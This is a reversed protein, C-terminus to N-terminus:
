EVINYTGFFVMQSTQTFNVFAATSNPTNTAQLVYEFGPYYQNTGLNGSQCFRNSVQPPNLGMYTDNAVDNGTKYFPHDERHIYTGVNVMMQWYKCPISWQIDYTCWMKVSPNAQPYNSSSIEVTTHMADAIFAWNDTMISPGNWQMNGVNNEPYLFGGTGHPWLNDDKDTTANIPTPIDPGTFGNPDVEIYDFPNLHWFNSLETESLYLYGWYWAGSFSGFQMTNTATPGTTATGPDPRQPNYYLVTVSSNSKIPISLHPWPFDGQTTNDAAAITYKGGQTNTAANRFNFVSWNPSATCTGTKSSANVSWSTNPYISLYVKNTDSNMIFADPGSLQIALSTIPANIGNQYNQPTVIVGTVGYYPLGIAAYLLNALFRSRAVVNYFIRDPAMGGRGFNCVDQTFRDQTRYDSLNVTMYDVTQLFVSIEDQIFGRFTRTFYGNFEGPMGVLTDINCLVTAGQFQVNVLYLFYNELMKYANMADATDQVNVPKVVLLDTFKKLPNASFTGPCMIDHIGQIYTDIPTSSNYYTNAFALAYTDLQQMHASDNNQKYTAANTAYYLLGSNDFTKFRSTLFTVYPQLQMNDLQDSIKVLGMQLQQSLQQVEADLQVLQASINNLDTTITTYEEAAVKDKHIEMLLDGIKEYPFGEGGVGTRGLGKGLCHSIYGSFEKGHARESATLMNLPKNPFVAPEEPNPPNPNVPDYTVDKKRCSSLGIILILILLATSFLTVSRAHPTEMTM